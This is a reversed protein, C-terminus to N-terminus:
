KILSNIHNAHIVLDYLKQLESLEVRETILIDYDSSVDKSAKIIGTFVVSADNKNKHIKYRLITEVGYDMIPLIYVGGSYNDEKFAKELDYIKIKFRADVYETITIIDLNNYSLEADLLLKGFQIQKSTKNKNNINKM